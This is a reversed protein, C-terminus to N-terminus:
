DKKIFNVTQTENYANKSKIKRNENLTQLVRINKYYRFPLEFIVDLLKPCNEGGGRKM